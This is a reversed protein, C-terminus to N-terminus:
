EYDVGDAVLIPVGQPATSSSFTSSAAVLGMAIMIALALLTRAYIKKARM